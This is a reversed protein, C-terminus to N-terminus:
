GQPLYEIGTNALGTLDIKTTNFVTDAALVGLAAQTMAGSDLLGKYLALEAPGPANGIVNTYLLNVVATNSANAGLKAALAAQMLAQYSTGADLLQLGIGVFLKNTLGERGFVAGLVKATTGANGSLDLALSVDSFKLREINTLTDTGESSSTVALSAAGRTVTYGARAGTFVATDVGAGGDLTDNGALGTLTDNGSGGRLTDSNSGGTLRVAPPPAFGAKGEARGVALFHALGSAFSGQAVLAAVQPNANLYYHENFGPAGVTAPDMGNPGTSYASTGQYVSFGMRLTTGDDTTDAVIFDVIGDNNVDTWIPEVGAGIPAQLYALSTFESRPMERFNGVGDNLLVSFNITAQGNPGSLNQGREIIDLFGDRNFDLLGIQKPDTYTQTGDPRPNVYQIRATADTFGTGGNNYLLQIGRGALFPENRTESLVIDPRGDGNLDGTISDRTQTNATGYLPPPLNIVRAESFNGRGDNLAVFNSRIGQRLVVSALVDMAGDGNVDLLSARFWTDRTGGGFHLRSFATLADDNRATFNGNGDNLLMFAPQMNAPGGLTLVFIDNDGDADLDGIETDYGIVARPNNVGGSSSGNSAALSPLLSSRNTIAQSASDYYAMLDGTNGLDRGGVSVLVVEHQPDTDLNGAAYGTLERLSLVGGSVQSTVNTFGGAGNNLFFQTPYGPNTTLQVGRNLSMVLDKLGDGNLDPTLFGMDFYTMAGAPTLRGDLAVYAPIRETDTITFFNSTVKTYQPM